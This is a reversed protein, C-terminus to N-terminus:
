VPLCNHGASYVFDDEDAIEACIRLRAVHGATRGHGIERDRRALAPLVLLRALLLVAGLPVLDDHEVPQGFDRGLIEAFAGLNIDLALQM